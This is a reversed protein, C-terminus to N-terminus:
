DNLAEPIEDVYAWARVRELFEDETDFRMSSGNTDAAICFSYKNQTNGVSIDGSKEVFLIRKGREPIEKDTKFQLTYGSKM